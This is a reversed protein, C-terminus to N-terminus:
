RTVRYKVSCCGKSRTKPVEPCTTKVHVLHLRGDPGHEETIKNIINGYRQEWEWLASGETAKSPDDCSTTSGGRCCGGNNEPKYRRTYELSEISPGIITPINEIISFTTSKSVNLYNPDSSTFSVVVRYDGVDKPATHSGASGNLNYYTFVTTGNIHGGGGGYILVTAVFPKGTYIGGLADIFMKPITLPSMATGGVIIGGSGIEDYSFAFSAGTTEVGGNGEEFLIVNQPASGGIIVGDSM